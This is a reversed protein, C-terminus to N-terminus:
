RDYGTILVELLDVPQEQFFPLLVRLRPLIPYPRGDSVARGVVGLM